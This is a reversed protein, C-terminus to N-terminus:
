IIHPNGLITTGWFPHNIISFRILISSKPPYLCKLSVVMDESMWRYMDYYLTPKAHAEQSWSDATQDSGRFVREKHTLPCGFWVSASDNFWQLFYVNMMVYSLSYDNNIWENFSIFVNWIKLGVMKLLSESGGTLPFVAAKGGCCRGLHCTMSTRNHRGWWSVNFCRKVRQSPARVGPASAPVRNRPYRPISDWAAFRNGSTTGTQLSTKM